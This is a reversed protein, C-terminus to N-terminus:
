NSYAARYALSSALELASAYDECGVCNNGTERSAIVASRIADQIRMDNYGFAKKDANCVAVVAKIAAPTADDHMGALLKTAAALTIFSTKM